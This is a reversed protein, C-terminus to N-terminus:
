FLLGRMKRRRMGRRRKPQPPCHQTPELWLLWHSYEAAAVAAVAAAPLLPMRGM